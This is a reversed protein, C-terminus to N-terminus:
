SAEGKADFEMILSLMSLWTTDIKGVLEESAFSIEKASLWSEFDIKLPTLNLLDCISSELWPLVQGDKVCYLESVSSGTQVEFFGISSQLERLMKRLLKPAISGLDFDRSRLIKEAAAEDKLNMEEKLSQAISIAGSDIQRAMEVGRPGVIVAHTVEKDIELFLVPSRNADGNMSDKIAGITGITGIELRKPYIAHEVLENQTSSIKETTAGCVLISKKNSAALDIDSGEEASLCYTAFTDPDVGVSKRLFDMVFGAEKGRPADLLLQRVVRGQPYVACSAHMYASSKAKAFARIAAAPDGEKALDIEVIDEVVTPATESSIRAARIASPRFEVIFNNKKASIM